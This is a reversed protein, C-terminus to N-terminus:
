LESALGIYGGNNARIVDDKSAKATLPPQSKRDKGMSYLDYDTNIPVLFKNKRFSGKGKATEINLYQYPSGWPDLLSAYNVAALSAPYERNELQYASIEISIIKIEAITRVIRAKEIYETYLPYAIAGLISVIAIAIMLEFLTFGMSGTLKGDRSGACVKDRQLDKMSMPDKARLVIM